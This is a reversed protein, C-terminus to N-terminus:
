ACWAPHEDAWPLAEELQAAVRLLVDERAYAAVLQVGIPLGDGNRHLPLSVAPQGTINFPFTFVTLAGMAESLGPGANGPGLVGLPPPPAGLQPTVLLDYGDGGDDTPAWFRALGRAYDNARELAAIYRAATVTRGGEVLAQNWPELEAPDITRGLTASWRDLDRAVFTGFIGGLSEGLAPDDLAPLDVVEVHHGLAELARAAVGAAAVCDPHVDDTARPRRTRVGIRLRGPDAGVEDRFPRTPPPAYYPDGPVPGATADLVAATDRVSRTLVHEHTTLAWYEGFGPGLSNRGRTPKLGVLGCASAPIRISGGMDNGHAVAVMGSAVAAGSGGSSGGPSHDLNWPNHTAGFALPETTASTALEPLNTKGLIVFGAARYRAVLATDTPAVYGADKLVQMGCHYPDGASHAVADKLLMPVGRFPGDPLPGAAAARAKDFMPTIVANCRPNRAEIRAIAAEVLEAPTVAGDRVLAAQATADLWQGDTADTTM